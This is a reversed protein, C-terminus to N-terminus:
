QFIEIPKYNQRQEHNGTTSAISPVIETADANPHWWSPLLSVNFLNKETKKINGKGKREDSTLPCFM